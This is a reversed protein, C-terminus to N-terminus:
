HAFSIRHLLLTYLFSCIKLANKMFTWGIYIVHLTLVCFCKKSLKRTVMENMDSRELTCTDGLETKKVDEWFDGAPRGFLHYVHLQTRLPTVCLRPHILPLEAAFSEM